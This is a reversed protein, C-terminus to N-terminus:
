RGEVGLAGCSRRRRRWADDARQQFHAQRCGAREGTSLAFITDGDLLTHCPRITLALGDHSTRALYYAQDKSLSADTAVVGIATNVPLPNEQSNGGRLLLDSSDLFISGDSTRPGAVVKGTRHDVVSGYSNVAVIAGISTGDPLEMSCTGIGGKVAREMGLAKGVTAGTGAGVTGEEVAENSRNLCAAYGEEPGPRTKQSILNLDFLIASPVLPVIIPGRKYGIGQEELYKMAGAAASLGFVSGGSLLVAHVRGVLNGPGLLDTESTGPAGGRVDVGAVAGEPCVIVTCGTGASKDTYHGVEIGHIDTIADAM